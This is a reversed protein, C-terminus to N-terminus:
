ALLPRAQEKSAWERKKQKLLDNVLMPQVDAELEELVDFRFAAEGHERWEAQLAADRHSGLRLTFWTSNHAAGLNPTSGVWTNGTATCRVAFVGRHPQRKKFEEIAAKRSTSAM